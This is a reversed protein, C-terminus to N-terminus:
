KVPYEDFPVNLSVNWRRLLSMWERLSFDTAKLECRMPHCANIDPDFESNGGSSSVEM